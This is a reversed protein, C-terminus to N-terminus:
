RRTDRNPALRYASAAHAGNPQTGALPAEPRRNCLGSCTHGSSATSPRTSTKEATTPYAPLAAVETGYSVAPGPYLIAAFPPFCFEGPYEAASTKTTFTELGHM